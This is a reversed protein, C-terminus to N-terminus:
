DNGGVESLVEPNFGKDTLEGLLKSFGKKTYYLYGYMGRWRELYRRKHKIFIDSLAEVTETDPINGIMKMFDFYDVYFGRRTEYARLEYVTDKVELHLYLKRV